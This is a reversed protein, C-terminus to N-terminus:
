APLLRGPLAEPTYRLPQNRWLAEAAPWAIVLAFVGLVLALTWQGSLLTFVVIGILGLVVLTGLGTMLGWRWAGYGGRYDAKAGQAVLREHFARVFAAYDAGQDQVHTLSVRSTSSLKVRTGDRSEVRMEYSSTAFKAPEFSLHVRVVDALRLRGERPGVSWELNQLGLVLHVGAGGLRPHYAYTSARASTGLMESAVSRGDGEERDAQM